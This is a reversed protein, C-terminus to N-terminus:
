TAGRTTLARQMAEEIIKRAARYRTYATQLPCGVAASVEPMTWEELEYLVFVARKDDDLLDLFRDLLARAELREVAREQGAPETREPLKEHAHPIERRVHARDRLDAAVRRCIGFLWTRVASSGDYSDLRRHVTLFVQQGADPLDARGVGMRRLARLVFPAHRAYVEQFNLPM